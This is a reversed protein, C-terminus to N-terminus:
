ALDGWLGQQCTNQHLTSTYGMGGGGGWEKEWPIFSPSYLLLLHTGDKSSVILTTEFESDEQTDVTSSVSPLTPPPALDYSRSFAQDEIFWWISVPRCYDKTDLQRWKTAVIIKPPPPPAEMLKEDLISTTTRWWFHSKQM